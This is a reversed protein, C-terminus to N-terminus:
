AKTEKVLALAEELSLHVTEEAATFGRLVLSQVTVARRFKFPLCFNLVESPMRRDLIVAGPFLRVYDATDRPHTKIFLPGDAYRAAVARFMADQTQQDLLGDEVFSRPLLLTAGDTNEPLAGHLFVRRVAAKEAETLSAFMAMRSFTVLKEPGFLTCRAADESEVAKCCRSDGWYLYGQGSKQRAAFDPQARQDYVIHQDPGLTSAVTDEGLIYPVRCDQLYRGIASWDNCIYVNRYRGARLRPGCGAREYARRNRLHALPGTVIGPWLREDVLSIEDFAGTARLRSILDDADATRRRLDDFDPLTDALWVAQGGGVRLARVLYTLLHLMTHCIYLDRMAM